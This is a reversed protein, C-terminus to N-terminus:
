LSVKLKRNCFPCRIPQEMLAAEMSIKQDCDPCRFKVDSVRVPKVVDDDEALAGTPLKPAHSVKPAFDSCDPCFDVVNAGEPVGPVAKGCKPCYNAGVGSPADVGPQKKIKIEM